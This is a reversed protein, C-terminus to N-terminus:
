VRSFKIWVPPPHLVGEYTKTADVMDFDKNTLSCQYKFITQAIVLRLEVLAFARGVCNRPGVSFPQSAKKNDTFSSDFWREPLFENPRSWYENSRHIMMHSSLVEVGSPVYLGDVDTGPSVRAGGLSAPPLLRMAENICGNLYPMRETAASTIEDVAQFAKKLQNRLEQQVPELKSLYFFAATIAIGMTETGAPIMNVLNL